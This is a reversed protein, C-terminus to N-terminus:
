LEYHPQMTVHQENEVNKQKLKRLLLSKRRRSPKFVRKWSRCQSVIVGSLGARHSLERLLRNPREHPDQDVGDDAQEATQEYDPECETM